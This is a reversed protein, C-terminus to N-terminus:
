YDVGIYCLDIEKNTWYFVDFGKLTRWTYTRTYPKELRVNEWIYKHWNYTKKGIVVDCIITNVLVRKHTILEERTYIDYDCKIM